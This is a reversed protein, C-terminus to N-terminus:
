LGSGLTMCSMRNMNDAINAVPIGAFGEVLERNPRDIKSHIRFGINSM